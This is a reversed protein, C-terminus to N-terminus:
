VKLVHNSKSGSDGYVSESLKSRLRVSEANGGEVSKMAHYSKLFYWVVFSFDEVGLCSM